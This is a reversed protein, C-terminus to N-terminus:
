TSHKLVVNGFSILDVLNHEADDSTANIIMQSSNLINFASM